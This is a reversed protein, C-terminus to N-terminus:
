RIGEPIPWNPSSEQAKRKTLEPEAPTADSLEGGIDASRVGMVRLLDRMDHMLQAHPRMADDKGFDTGARDLRESAEQCSGSFAKFARSLRRDTVTGVASGEAHAGSRAVCNM